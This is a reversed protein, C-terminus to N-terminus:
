CVVYGGQKRFKVIIEACLMAGRNGSSVSSVTVISRTKSTQSSFPSLSEVSLDIMSNRFTLLM